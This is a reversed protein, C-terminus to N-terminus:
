GLLNGWLRGDKEYRVILNKKDYALREALESATIM